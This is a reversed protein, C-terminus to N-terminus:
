IKKLSCKKCNACNGVCAMGNKKTYYIAAFFTALVIILVIITATNMVLEKLELHQREM